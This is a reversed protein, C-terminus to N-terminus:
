EGIILLLNDEIRYMMSAVQIGPYRQRLRKAEHSVFRIIYAFNDSIRLRKRNDMCMGILLPAQTYSGFPRNLNHYELLYNIPTGRYELSIDDSTSVSILRNM